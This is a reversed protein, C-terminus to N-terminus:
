KRSAQNAAKFARATDALQRSALREINEAARIATSLAARMPLMKKRLDRAVARDKEIRDRVEPILLQGKTEAFAKLEGLGTGLEAALTKFAHGIPDINPSKM